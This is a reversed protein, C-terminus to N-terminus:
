QFLSDYSPPDDANSQSGEDITDNEITVNEITENQITDDTVPPVVSTRFRCRHDVVPNLELEVRQQNILRDRVYRNWKVYIKLFYWAM